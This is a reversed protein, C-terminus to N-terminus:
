SDAAVAVAMRRVMAAMHLPLQMQVRQVMTTEVVVEEEVQVPLLGNRLVPERAVRTNLIVGAAVAVLGLPEGVVM